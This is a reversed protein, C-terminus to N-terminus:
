ISPIINPMVIMKWDLLSGSEQTREFHPFMEDQEEAVAKSWNAKSTMTM